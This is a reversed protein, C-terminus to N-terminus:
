AVIESYLLRSADTYDAGAAGRAVWVVLLDVHNSVLRGFCGFFADFMPACLASFSDRFVMLRMGFADQCKTLSVARFVTRFQLRIRESVIVGVGFFAEGVSTVVLSFVM